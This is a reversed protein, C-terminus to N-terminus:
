EICFVFSSPDRGQMGRHGHSFTRRIPVPAVRILLQILMAPTKKPHFHIQLAILPQGEAGQQHYFILRDGWDAMVGQFPDFM